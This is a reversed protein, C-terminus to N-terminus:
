RKIDYMVRILLIEGYELLDLTLIAVFNIM